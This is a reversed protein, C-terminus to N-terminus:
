NECGRDLCRRSRGYTEKMALAALLAVGIGVVFMEMAWSFDSAVYAHGVVPQVRHHADMLWGFLPEFFALGGQSAINVVSVSMATIAPLSSEAVVSYSIVQVSTLM